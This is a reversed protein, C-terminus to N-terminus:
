GSSEAFALLQRIRAADRPTPDHALLWELMTRVPAGGDTHRALLEVLSATNVSASRGDTVLAALRDLEEGSAPGTGLARLATAGVDADDDAIMAILTARSERTPTRGLAAAAASRVDPDADRTYATVQAVSGDMRANGLASLFAAKAEPTTARELAGELESVVRRAGAKDGARDLASAAGGLAYAAGYRVDESGGVPSHFSSRLFALSAADPHAVFGLRQEMAAFASPDRRAVPSALASRLAAQARPDDVASLLDLILLRSPTRTGPQAFVSLLGACAEPHVTLFATARQLWGKELTDGGAFSAVSSALAALTMGDARQRVAEAHAGPDPAPEGPRVVDLLALDVTFATPAEFTGEAVKAAHFRTHSRLAPSSPDSAEVVLTEEDDLSGVVGAPDLRVLGASRVAQRDAAGGPLTTVREYAWRTRQLSLGTDGGAQYRSHAIGNPGPETADWAPAGDGPVTVQMWAVLASLVARFVAPADKKFYLSRVVGRDDIRVWAERGEFTARAGAADALADAGLVRLEHRRVDALAVGLLYAGEQAGFSRLVLRGAIRM